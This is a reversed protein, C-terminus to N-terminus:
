VTLSHHGYSTQKQALRLELIHSAHLIQCDTVSLLLVHRLSNATGLMDTTSYKAEM